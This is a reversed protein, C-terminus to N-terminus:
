YPLYDLIPLTLFIAFVHTFMELVLHGEMRLHHFQKYINKINLLNRITSVRKPLLSQLTFMKCLNILLIYIRNILFDLIDRNIISQNPSIHQTFGLGLM